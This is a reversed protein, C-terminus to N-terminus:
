QKEQDNLRIRIDHPHSAYINVVTEGDEAAIHDVQELCQDEADYMTIYLESQVDAHLKYREWPYLSVVHKIHDPLILGTECGGQYLNDAVKSIYPVDFPTYGHRAIGSLRRRTPDTTLDIRTPDVTTM